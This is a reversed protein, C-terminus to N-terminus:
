SVSPCLPRPVPPGLQCRRRLSRSFTWARENDRGTARCCPLEFSWIPPHAVTAPFAPSLSSATPAGGDRSVRRESAGCEKELGDDGSGGARNCLADFTSCCKLLISTEPSCFLFTIDVACGVLSEGAMSFSLVDRMRPLDAAKCIRETSSRLNSSSCRCARSLRENDDPRRRQVLLLDGQVPVTPRITHQM